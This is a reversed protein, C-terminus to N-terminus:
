VCVCMCACTCVIHLDSWAVKVREGQTIGAISYIFGMVRLTKM